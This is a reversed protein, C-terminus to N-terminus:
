SPPAYFWSEWLIRPFLSFFSASFPFPLSDARFSKPPFIIVHLWLIDWCRWSQRGLSSPFQFAFTIEHSFACILTPSVVSLLWPAKIGQELTWRDCVCHCLCCNSCFFLVHCVPILFHLSSLAILLNIEHLASFLPFFLCFLNRAIPQLPFIVYKCFLFGLWLGLSKSPQSM